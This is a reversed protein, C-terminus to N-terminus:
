NITQLKAKYQIDLVRVVNVDFVIVEFSKDNRLLVNMCKIDKDKYVEYTNIRKIKDLESLYINTINSDDIECILLADGYFMSFKKDLSLYLVAGFEGDISRKFGNTLISEVNEKKTNHYCIM